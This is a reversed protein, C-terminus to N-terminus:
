DHSIREVTVKYDINYTDKVLISIKHFEEDQMVVSIMDLTNYVVSSEKAKKSALSLIYSLLKPNM